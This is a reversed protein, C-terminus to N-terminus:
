WEVIIQKKKDVKLEIQVYHVEGSFSTIEKYHSIETGDVTMKKLPPKYRLSLLINVPKTTNIVISTKGYEGPMDTQYRYFALSDKVQLDRVELTHLNNPLLPRIEIEDNHEIKGQLSAVLSLFFSLHLLNGRDVANPKDPYIKFNRVEEGVGVTIIHEPALNSEDTYKLLTDIEETAANPYGGRLLLESTLANLSLQVGMGSWRRANSAGGELVSRGDPGPVEYDLLWYTHPIIRDKNYYINRAAWFTSATKEDWLRDNVYQYWVASMEFPEVIFPQGDEYIGAIYYKGSACWLYKQIGSGIWRAYNSWKSALDDKGYEMALRSSCELGKKCVANIHLSYGPPGNIDIGKGRFVMEERGPLMQFRENYITLLYEVGKEIMGWNEKLWKKDGTYHYYEYCHWLVYGNTDVQQKPSGNQIMPKPNEVNFSQGWNGEPSQCLKWFNLFRRIREFEGFELLPQTIFVRPYCAKGRNGGIGYMFGNDWRDDSEVIGGSEYKDQRYAISELSAAIMQNFKESDTKIKM